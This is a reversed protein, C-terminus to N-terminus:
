KLKQGSTHCLRIWEQLKKVTINEWILIEDQVRLCNLTITHHKGAAVRAEEGGPTGRGTVPALSCEVTWLPIGAARRAPSASRPAPESQICVISPM